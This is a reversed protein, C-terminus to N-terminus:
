ERKTSVNARVENIIIKLIMTDKLSKNEILLYYKGDVPTLTYLVGSPPNEVQLEWEAHQREISEKLRVIGGAPIKISDAEAIKVAIRTPEIPLPEGNPTALNGNQVNNRGTEAQPATEVQQAAKWSAPVAFYYFILIFTCAGLIRPAWKEIIKEM